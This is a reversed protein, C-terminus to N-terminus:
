GPRTGDPVWRTGLEGQRRPPCAAQAPTTWGRPAGCLPILTRNTRFHAATHAVQLLFIHAGDIVTLSQKSRIHAEGPYLFGCRAVVQLSCM